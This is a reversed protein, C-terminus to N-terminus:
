ADLIQQFTTNYGDRMENIRVLVVEFSDRIYLPWSVISEIHQDGFADDVIAVAKFHKLYTPFSADTFRKLLELSVYDEDDKYKTKLHFLSEGLRSTFDKEVDNMALQLSSANAAPRTAASKTEVSILCDTTEPTGLNPQQFFVVDTFHAPIDRAEKWRWKPPRLHSDPAYREPILFYSLLESFEGSKLTPKTPLKESIEERRIAGVINQLRRQLKEDSIYMGRFAAPLKSLFNVREAPKLTYVTIRDTRQVETFHTLIDINHM